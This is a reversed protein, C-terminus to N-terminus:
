GRGESPHRSASWLAEARVLDGPHTVKLNDPRGACTRVEVGLREVLSACDTGVFRDRAAKDLAERLVDLRFAQPTQALALESRDLTARVREGAVRKVTDGVPLVPLAAGTPRAAALVREVDEPSVLCRAADHVLVWEPPESRGALARVACTVSDQRTEGGAVPRDLAAPGSWGERLESFAIGDEEGAPLVCLVRDVGPASGLARAAHELLTRGGLRVLAKPSGKGLREGRGAGLLIAVAM